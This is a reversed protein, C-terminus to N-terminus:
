SGNCLLFSCLVASLVACHRVTVTILGLHVQDLASRSHDQRFQERRRQEEQQRREELREAQLVDCDATVGCCVVPHM